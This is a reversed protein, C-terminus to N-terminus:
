PLERPTSAQAQPTSSPPPAQRLVRLVYSTGDQDAVFGRQFGGSYYCSLAAQLAPQGAAYRTRARGYCRQLIAAGARLNACPDFASAYDLGHLALNHRNVQALGLSFNWGGRELAVATAVAEALHQPQRQLRGGVVGIAFPNGGSEARVIATMTRPHVGPSCTAIMAGLEVADMM